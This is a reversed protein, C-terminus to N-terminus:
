VLDEALMHQRIEFPVSKLLVHWNTVRQEFLLSNPLRQVGCAFRRMVPVELFAAVKRMANQFDYLLDAYGVCLVSDCCRDVKRRMAEHTWVFQTLEAPDITVSSSWRAKDGVDAYWSGIQRAQCYSVFCAVPNRLVHVCCCREVGRFLDYLDLKDLRDYLIRFGIAAEHRQPNNFIRHTVYQLPSTEFNDLWEPHNGPETAGYYAEHCRQRVAEEADFLDALCSVRGCGGLSAQVVRAGSRINGIVAFNLTQATQLVTATM